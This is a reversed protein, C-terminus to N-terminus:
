AKEKVTYLKEKLQEYRKTVVPDDYDGFLSGDKASIRLADILMVREDETIRIVWQKRM